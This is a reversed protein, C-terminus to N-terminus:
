ITNYNLYLFPFSSIDHSIHSNFDVAREASLGVSNLDVLIGVVVPLIPHENLVCHRVEGGRLSLLEDRPEAGVALLHQEPALRSGAWCPRAKENPSQAPGTVNARGPIRM